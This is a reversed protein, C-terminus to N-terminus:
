EHDNHISAIKSVIKFVHIAIKLSMIILITIRNKLSEFPFLKFNSICM